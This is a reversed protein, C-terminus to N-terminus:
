KENLLDEYNIQIRYVLESYDVWRHGWKWIYTVHGQRNLWFENMRPKGYLPYDKISEIGIRIAKQLNPDQVPIDVSHSPTWNTRNWFYESHIDLDRLLKEPDSYYENKVRNFIEALTPNISKWGYNIGSPIYDFWLNWKRYEEKMSEIMTYVIKMINERTRKKINNLLPHTWSIIKSKFYQRMEEIAKAEPYLIKVERRSFWDDVKDM